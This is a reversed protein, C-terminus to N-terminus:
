RNSQKLNEAIYKEIIAQPRKGKTKIGLNKYEWIIQQEYSDVESLDEYNYDINFDNPSLLSVM